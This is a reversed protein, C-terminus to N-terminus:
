FLKSHGEKIEWMESAGGTKPMLVSPQWGNQADFCIAGGLKQFHACTDAPIQVRM